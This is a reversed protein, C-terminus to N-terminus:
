RSAPTQPERAREAPQEPHTDNDLWERDKMEAVAREDEEIEDRLDEFPVGRREAEQRWSLERFRRGAEDITYQLEHQEIDDLMRRQQIGLLAWVRWTEAETLTNVRTPPDAPSFPIEVVFMLDDLSVNLVRAVMGVALMDMLGLQDSGALLNLIDEDASRRGYREEIQRTLDAITLNRERLIHGLQGFVAVSM